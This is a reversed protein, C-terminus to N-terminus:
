EFSEECMWADPMKRVSVSGPGYEVDVSACRCKFRIVATGWTASMWKDDVERTEHTLEHKGDIYVLSPVIERECEECIDTRPNEEKDTM